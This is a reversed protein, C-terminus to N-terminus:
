SDRVMLPLCPFFFHLRTLRLSGSRPSILVLGVSLLCASPDIASWDNQVAFVSWFIIQGRKERHTEPHPTSWARRVATDGRSRWRPRFLPGALSGLDVDPMRVRATLLASRRLPCTIQCLPAMEITDIDDESITKLKKRADGRPDTRVM